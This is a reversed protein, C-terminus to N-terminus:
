TGQGGKLQNKTNKHNFQLLDKYTRSKLGKNSTINAFIKEWGTPQRKQEKM